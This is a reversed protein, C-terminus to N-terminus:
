AAPELWITHATYGGRAIRIFEALQGRVRGAREVFVDAVAQQEAPELSRQGFRLLIRDMRDLIGEVHRYDAVFRGGILRELFDSFMRGQVLPHAAAFPVLLASRESELAGYFVAEWAPTEELLLHDLYLETLVHGPLFRKLGPTSSAARLAAQVAQTTQEFLPARHFLRDVHHHFDIGALVQEAGPLAAGHESWHTVLPQPRAKRRYLSLLDPLLAGVRVAAPAEGACALHGILNM